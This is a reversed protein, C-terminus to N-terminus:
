PERLDVETATQVTPEVNARVGRIEAFVALAHRTTPAEQLCRRLLADAVAKWMDRDATLEKVRAEIEDVNM